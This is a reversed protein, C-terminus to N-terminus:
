ETEKKNLTEDIWNMVQTAVFHAPTANKDNELPEDLETSINVGDDSDAIIIKVIAM